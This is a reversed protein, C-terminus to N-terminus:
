AEHAFAGDVPMAGPFESLGANPHDIWRRFTYVRRAASFFCAWWCFRSNSAV